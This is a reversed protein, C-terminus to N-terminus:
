GLVQFLQTNIEDADFRRFEWLLNLTCGASHWYRETKIGYTTWRCRRDCAHERRPSMEDAIRPQTTQRNMTGCPSRMPLLNFM